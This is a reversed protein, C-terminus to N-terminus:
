TGTQDAAISKVRNMNRRTVEKAIKRALQTQTLPNDSLANESLAKIREKDVITKTTQLIFRAQQASQSQYFPILLLLLAAEIKTREEQTDKVLEEHATDKPVVEKLLRQIHSSFFAGTKRYNKRLIASLEELYANFDPPLGIEAFSAFIDSGLNAFFARLDRALIREFSLKNEDYQNSLIEKERNTLNIAGM